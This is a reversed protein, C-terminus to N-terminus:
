VTCTIAVTVTMVSSYSTRTSYLTPPSSSLSFSNNLALTQGGGVGGAEGMCVWRGSHEKGPGMQLRGQGRFISQAKGM